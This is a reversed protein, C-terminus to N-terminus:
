VNNNNIICTDIKLNKTFHLSYFTRKQSVSPHQNWIDCGNLELVELKEPFQRHLYWFQWIESNKQIFKSSKGHIQYWFNISSTLVLTDIWGYFALFWWKQVFFNKALIEYKQGMTHFEVRLVKSWFYTFNEFLPPSYLTM